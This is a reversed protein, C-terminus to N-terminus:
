FVTIKKKKKRKLKEVSFNNNQSSIYVNNEVLIDNEFFEVLCCHDFNCM